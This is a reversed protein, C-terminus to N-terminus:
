ELLLTEVALLTEWHQTVHLTRLLLKSQSPVSHPLMYKITTAQVGTLALVGIASALITTRM